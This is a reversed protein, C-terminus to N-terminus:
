IGPKGSWAWGNTVSTIYAVNTHGQPYPANIVATVVTRTSMGSFSQATGTLEYRV